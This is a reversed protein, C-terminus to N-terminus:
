QEGGPGGMLGHLTQRANSCLRKGTRSETLQNVEILALM